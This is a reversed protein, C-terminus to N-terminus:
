PRRGLFVRIILVEYEWYEQEQLDQSSNPFTISSESCNFHHLKKKKVCLYCDFNSFMLIYTYSILCSFMYNSFINVLLYIIFGEELVHIRNLTTFM